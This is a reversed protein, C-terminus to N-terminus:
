KSASAAVSSGFCASVASAARHLARRDPGCRRPVIAGLPLSALKRRGKPQKGKLKAIESKAPRELSAGFAWWAGDGRRLYVKDLTDGAGTSVLCAWEAASSQALERGFRLWVREEIELKRGVRSSWSPLGLELDFQTANAIALGRQLEEFSGPELLELASPTKAPDPQAEAIDRAERGASILIALKSLTVADFGQVYDTLETLAPLVPAKAKKAGTAGADWGASEASRSLELLRSIQSRFPGERNSKPAVSRPTKSGPEASATRPARAIPAATATKTSSAM